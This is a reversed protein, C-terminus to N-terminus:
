ANVQANADIKALLWTDFGFIENQPTTELDTSNYIGLVQAKIEKDIKFKDRQVLIHICKLWMNSNEDAKFTSSIYDITAQCDEYDEIDYAVVIKFMYIQLKFQEDFQSFFASKTLAVLEAYAKKLFGNEYNLISLNLQIFQVYYPNSVFNTDDKIENLIRIAKHPQKDAYNMVLSQYYFFLYKHYHLKGFKLMEDYLMDTYQLSIALENNKFASNIIFTIMQLKADHNSKSFLNNTNFEDYKDIVYNQLEKYDKNQLLFQTILQYIAYQFQYSRTYEDKHSHKEIVESLVKNINASGTGMNQNRRLQHNVLALVNNLESLQQQKESNSKQLNIIHTLDITEIEYSLKIYDHYIIGLYDYNDLATAKQEARKLYHHSLQFREKSYFIKSLTLNELVEHHLNNGNHLLLLSKSIRNFLRNKLRYFANANDPYYKARFTSEGGSKKHNKLYEFLELDLRNEKSKLGKTVLKFHRIEEKSLSNILDTLMPLISTPFTLGMDIPVQKKHYIALKPRM